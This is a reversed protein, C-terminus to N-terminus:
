RRRVIDGFADELTQFRFAYGTSRACEPAVRQSALLLADALEGFAIRLAFAPTPLWAPRHLLNGLVVPFDRMRRPAPAAANMAGSVAETDLAHLILGVVDDRHIWSWWQRGNGLPGAVGLRSTLVLLDSALAGQDLVVGTRLRVVRVGFAEAASAAGEWDVCLNALFDDGPTSQETLLEDGRNGYYGAASANVLVGPRRPPDTAGIASVLTRTAQLRSARLERKLAGSWRTPIPGRGGINEGALNIVAHASGLAEVWGGTGTGGSPDWAQVEVPGGVRHRTQEPHRSLVVVQDGRDVLASCLKRGLFGTGGALVVRM